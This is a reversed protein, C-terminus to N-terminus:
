GNAAKLAQAHVHKAAREARRIKIEETVIAVDCVAVLYVSLLTYIDAPMVRSGAHRETLLFFGILFVWFSVLLAGACILGRGLRPFKPQMVAGALLIGAYFALGWGLGLLVGAVSTFCGTVIALWRTKSSVIM